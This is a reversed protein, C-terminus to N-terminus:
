WRVDVMACVPIGAAYDCWSQMILHLVHCSCASESLVALLGGALGAAGGLQSAVVCDGNALAANRALSCVLADVM